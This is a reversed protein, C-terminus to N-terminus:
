RHWFHLAASKRQSFLPWRKKRKSATPSTWYTEPMDSSNAAGPSAPRGADIIWRYAGDARRLRYEISFTENRENASLFQKTAAELDDPHVANLWGFGLGEDEGQGTFEYWGQSLFSCFGDPETVWLMAPAADAFDRFREESQQLTQEARQRQLVVATQNAAFELLLQEQETPFNARQSGAVLVDHEEGSGPSPRECLAPELRILCWRLRFWLLGPWSPLSHPRRKPFIATPM